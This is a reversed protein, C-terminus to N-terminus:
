HLLLKISRELESQKGVLGLKRRHDILGTVIVRLDSNDKLLFGILYLM